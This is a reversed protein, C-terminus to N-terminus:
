NEQYESRLLARRGILVGDGNRAEQVASLRGKANVACCQLVLSIHHLPLSSSRQTPSHLAPPTPPCSNHLFTSVSLSRLPHHHGIDIMIRSKPSVLAKNLYCDSRHAWKRHSKEKNKTRSFVRCTLTSYINQTQQSHSLVHNDITMSTTATAPLYSFHLINIVWRTSSLYSFIQYFAKKKADQESLQIESLLQHAPYCVQPTSTVM